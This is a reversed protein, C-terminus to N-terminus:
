FKKKSKKKKLKKSDMSFRNNNFSRFKQLFGTKSKGCTKIELKEFNNKTISKKKLKKVLNIGGKKMKKLKLIKSFFKKLEFFNNKLNTSIESNENLDFFEFKEVFIFNKKKKEFNKSKSDMLFIIEYRLNLCCFKINKLCNKLKELFNNIFNSNKTIFKINKRIQTKLNKKKKEYKKLNKPNKLNKSKPFNKIKEFKKMKESIKLKLNKKNKQLIKTKQFNKEIKTLTFNYYKKFIELIHIIEMKSIKDFNTKKSIELNEFIEKKELNEGKKSIENKKSNEFKEITELNKKKECFNKNNIQVSFSKKLDIKGLKKIKSNRKEFIKKKNELKKKEKFNEFNEIKLNEVFFIFKSIEENECFRGFDCFDSFYIKKFIGLIKERKFFFYDNKKFILKNEKEKLYRLFIRTKEFKEKKKDMEIKLFIIEEYIKKREDFIKKGFINKEKLFFKRANEIMKQKEEIKVLNNLVLFKKFKIFNKEELIKKKLNNQLPEMKYMSYIRKYLIKLNQSLNNKKKLLIKNEM